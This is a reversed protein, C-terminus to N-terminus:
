HYYKPDIDKVNKRFSYERRDWSNNNLGRINWAFEIKEPQSHYSSDTAKCIVQTDKLHNPIKISSKWFTWAWAQLHNQETGQGLEAIQWTKGNDISVDVRNIGRGGGSWAFGTIYINKGDDTMDTIASQVPMEHIPKTQYILEPSIEDVYHPFGKYSIGQQWTGDVEKESLTISKLWKINRIGVYGPVIVRIPYGHDRPLDAGNMKYALLVDGYPNMVKEIPISAKVGDIGEFHVHKVKGNKVDQRTMILDRLLVGEWEATSIAGIGWQTGMTKKKFGGRRNGGCQITTTVKKSNFKLIDKMNLEINNPSITLRYADIDIDPVPTHNRIYWLHNPTVWEDTISKAPVEANCPTVSHFVLDSDRQPDNIYPDKFGAYKKPDYDLITGIKMNPLIDEMLTKSNTHQKYTNWYPEVGKGAALLIKDKGGPHSDIFDTINYVSDKYTVWIGDEKKKHKEIESYTYKHLFGKKNYLTWALGSSLTIGSGFLLKKNVNM